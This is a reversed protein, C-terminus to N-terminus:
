DSWQRSKRDILLRRSLDVEGGNRTGLNRWTQLDVTNKVFRGSADGMLVNVGGPHHSSPAGADGHQGHQRPVRDGRLDIQNPPAVHNYLTCCMEGMVWSMGQRSTLPPATLVNLSQCAPVHRQAVDPQRIVLM